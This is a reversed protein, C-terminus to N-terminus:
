SEYHSNNKKIKSECNKSECHSVAWFRMPRKFIRRKKFTELMQKASLHLGVRLYSYKRSVNLVFYSFHM